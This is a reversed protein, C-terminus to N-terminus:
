MEHWTACKAIKHIGSDGVVDELVQEKKNMAAYISPEITQSECFIIIVEGDSKSSMRQIRGSAQVQKMYYYNAMIYTRRPFNGYKDDLSISESGSAINVILLRCENNPSQFKNIIKARENNKTSGNIVMPNYKRLLRCAEDISDIHWLYLLIKKNPNNDLDNPIVRSPIEIKLNEMAHIAAQFKGLDLHKGIKGTTIDFDTARVMDDEIQRLRLQGTKSLRFYGAKIDLKTPYMAVAKTIFADKIVQIFLEHILQMILGKKMSSKPYKRLLNSTKDNDIHKAWSILEHMGHGELQYTRSSKDYVYMKDKTVIGFIKLLSESFKIKDYPTASLVCIRSRSNSQVIAKSLAACVQSTATDQNKALHVEDYIFLYGMQIMDLILKSPFFEGEEYTFYVPKYTNNKFIYTHGKENTVGYKNIEDQTIKGRLKQYSIGNYWQYGYKASENEWTNLSLPTGITFPILNMHSAAALTIITKGMGTPSVNGVSFRSKLIRITDLYCEVQVEMISINNVIELMRCNTGKISTYIKKAAAQKRLVGNDLLCMNDFIFIYKSMLMYQMRNTLYFKGRNFTVLPDNSLYKEKSNVDIIEDDEFAMDDVFILGEFKYQEAAAKWLPFDSMNGIIVPNLGVMSCLTFIKIIKNNMNNENDDKNMCMRSIYSNRLNEVSKNVDTMDLTSNAQKKNESYAGDYGYRTEM